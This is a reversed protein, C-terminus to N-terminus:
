NSIDNSNTIIYNDFNLFQLSVDHMNNKVKYHRGNKDIIAIGVGFKVNYM